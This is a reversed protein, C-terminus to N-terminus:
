RMQRRFAGPSLHYHRRFVKCLHKADAFGTALAITQLTCDSTLLRSAVEELRVQTVFQAPPHGTVARFHHSFHSRSMGRSRALRAVDPTSALDGMVECRVDALLTERASPAYRRAHAHRELEWLFEFLAQEQAWPDRFGGQCVGEFLRVLRAVTLSDPALTSVAAGSEAKLQSLRAVVYPHNFMVWFFTWGPSDPPLRYTHASPVTATFAEGPSLRQILGDEEYIGWGDLTYQVVVFPHSADGHRRLGDWHYAEGATRTELGAGLFMGPGLRLPGTERLSALRTLDHQLVSYTM